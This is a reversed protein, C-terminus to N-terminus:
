RRQIVDAEVTGLQDIQAKVTDGPKIPHAGPTGTSIIDGPMLTMAESHFEVLDEPSFMMNAVSNKAKTEGNVVTEVTIEKLSKVEDTTTIWPGIIIFSDFSKSRTLFRPNKELIDEATMDIIPVYGAIVDDVRDGSLNECERGIVVGIEAEATVRESIKESPLKIPGGPPSAATSPKMFSAPEDPWSEDLDAAHEAYNLGIGWLKGLNAIPIGFNINAPPQFSATANDLTPLQGSAASYLIEAFSSFPPQVTKHSVFGRDDGLLPRDATTRAIYPM